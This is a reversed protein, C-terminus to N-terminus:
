GLCARGIDGELGVCRLFVVGLLQELADTSRDALLRHWSCPRAFLLALLQRVKRTKSEVDLCTDVDFSADIKQARLMPM